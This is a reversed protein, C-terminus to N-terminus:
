LAFEREINKGIKFLSRLSIKIVDNRLLAKTSSTKICFKKTIKELILDYKSETLHGTGENVYESFKSGNFM